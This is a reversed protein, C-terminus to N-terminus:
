GGGLHYLLGAPPLPLKATVHLKRGGGLSPLMQMRGQMVDSQTM